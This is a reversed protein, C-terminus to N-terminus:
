PKRDHYYRLAGPHLEVPFTEIAARADLVGALSVTRAIRERSAFLLRTLQYVLGPDADARTVIYSPLAVTLVPPTGPYTGAPVAAPRYAPSYRRLAAAYGGLPLLRIPVQGALSVVGATPLGGQWFFADIRGDHFATISDNIGLHAARLDRGPDLGVVTLLRNAVIETGSGTQGVSVRRGRLDRASRFPSDARVVLHIYEDYVRAVARIPLPTRFSGQGAVAESAADAAAFAFTSQGAAVRQLNEVSGETSRIRVHVGPLDSQVVAALATGYRYYVGQTSGTALEVTGPPVAPGRGSLGGVVRDVTGCGTVALLLAVLTGLFACRRSTM